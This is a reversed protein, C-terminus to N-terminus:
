LVQRAQPRLSLSRREPHHHHHRLRHHCERRLPSASRIARRHAFRPHLLIGRGPLSAAVVLAMRSPRKLLRIVIYAAVPKAILTLLIASLALPWYELLGAADFGMGVSVFFLVAFADRMPLADGAARASFKSQGVVMGSLFAGFELSANFVHSSLVAIGLAIVLVALTFLEDSTSRSVYTLTKEIIYRGLFAVCLILLTLKLTMWGLAPLLAQGAFIVPLLVLLVITFIDEVVLWGLATHGAPTQLVKNDALVRTLVVTSSVCMCAGFLSASMWTSGPALWYYFVAGMAARVLMCVVSGPVAVRQVALLDKFHFQLGVGFLLLVVGIHSFEDVVEGKVPMGWWPQAALIGAVLYGVIPSLKLKQALIGLVLALSLGIALTSIM